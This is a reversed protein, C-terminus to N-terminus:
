REPYRHAGQPLKARSTQVLRYYRELSNDRITFVLFTKFNDKFKAIEEKYEELEQIEDESLYKSFHSNVYLSSNGPSNESVVCGVRGGVSSLSGFGAFRKARNPSNERALALFVIACM